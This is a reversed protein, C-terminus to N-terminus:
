KIAGCIICYTEEHAPTDIIFQEEGNPVDKVIYQYGNLCGTIPNTHDKWVTECNPDDTNIAFGCHCVYYTVKHTGSSEYHGVEDVHRTAWSHTHGAEPVATYYNYLLVAVSSRVLGQGQVAQIDKLLNKEQAVLLHGNPYGGYSNAKDEERIARIIMTVAQEYTVPDSPGFKGGPYGNVIKLELAKGIFANAWHTTPVDNFVNSKPLNETQKLVRCVITAMEARSVIKNPNFNGKEDGVMVGLKSVYEVATAYDANTPVDPFSTGSSTNNTGANNPASGDSRRITLTGNEVPTFKIEAVTTESLYISGDNVYNTFNVGDSTYSLSYDNEQDSFIYASTVAKAYLTVKEGHRLKVKYVKYTPTVISNSKCGSNHKSWITGNYNKQCGLITFGCKRCRTLSTTILEVNDLTNYYIIDGASDQGVYYTFEKNPDGTTEQVLTMPMPAAFAVPMLSLLLVFALLALLIRKRM